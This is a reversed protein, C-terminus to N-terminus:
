IRKQETSSIPPLRRVWGSDVEAAAVAAKDAGEGAVGQGDTTGGERPPRSQGGIGGQEGGARMGGAFKNEVTLQKDDQTVVMTYSELNEWQQPLGQSKGKDLVWTGAFNASAASVAWTCALLVLALSFAILSRKM